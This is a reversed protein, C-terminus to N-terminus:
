PFPTPGPATVILDTPDDFLQLVYRARSRAEEWEPAQLGEPQWLEWSSRERMTEIWSTLLALREHLFPSATADRIRFAGALVILTDELTQFIEDVPWAHESCWRLQSDAPAAVVELDERLGALWEELSLERM